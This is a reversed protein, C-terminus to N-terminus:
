NNRGNKQELLIHLKETFDSHEKNQSLLARIENKLKAMRLSSIVLERVKIDLIEKRKKHLEKEVALKGKLAKESQELSKIAAQKLSLRERQKRRYVYVSALVVVLLVSLLIIICITRNAKENLLKNKGSLLENKKRQYKNQYNAQIEKIAVANRQEFVSDKLQIIQQLVDVADSYRGNQKLIEAKQFLYFIEN